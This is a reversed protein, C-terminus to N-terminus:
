QILDLKALLQFTTCKEIVLHYVKPNGYVIGPSANTFFCQPFAKNSSMTKHTHLATLAYIHVALGNNTSGMKAMM